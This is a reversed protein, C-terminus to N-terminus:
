DNIMMILYIVSEQIVTRNQVPKLLRFVHDQCSTNGCNLSPSVADLQHQAKRSRNQEYPEHQILDKTTRTLQQWADPRRLSRRNPQQCLDASLSIDSRGPLIQDAHPHKIWETDQWSSGVSIHADRSSQSRSVTSELSPFSLAWLYASGRVM